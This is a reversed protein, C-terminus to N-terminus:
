QEFDPPIMIGTGKVIDRVMKGFAQSMIRHAPSDHASSNELETAMAVLFGACAHIGAAYAEKVEQPARFYPSASSCALDAMRQGIAEATLKM